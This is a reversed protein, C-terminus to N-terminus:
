FIIKKNKIWEECVMGLKKYAQKKEQLYKEHKKNNKNVYLVIEEESNFEERPCSRTNKNKM